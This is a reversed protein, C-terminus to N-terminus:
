TQLLPFFTGVRCLMLKLIVEPHDRGILRWMSFLFFALSLSLSLCLCLSLSAQLIVGMEKGMRTHIDRFHGIIKKKQGTKICQGFLHAEM